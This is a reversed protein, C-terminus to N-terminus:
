ENTGEYLAALMDANELVIREILYRTGKFRCRHCQWRWADLITASGANHDAHGCKPCIFLTTTGVRALAFPHNSGWAYAAVLEDITAARVLTLPSTTTAATSSM